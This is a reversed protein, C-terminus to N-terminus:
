VMMEYWLCGFSIALVSSFLLVRTRKRGFISSLLFLPTLRTIMASFSRWRAVCDWGYRDVNCPITFFAIVCVVFLASISLLVLWEVVIKWMANTSNTDPRAFFKKWTLFAFFPPSFMALICIATFLFM